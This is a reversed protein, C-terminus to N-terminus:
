RTLTNSGSIAKALSILDPFIFDAGSSNSLGEKLPGLMVTHMGARQGFEIDTPSDGAMLSRSFDIEPFDCKAKLAMGLGPKRDPHQEEDLNPCFYVRDIRGGYKEVVALMMEHIKMADETTMLGKGIGQQNTVVIIRGFVGSFIRLAQRVGELFIFEDFNTVYGGHIRRNIVGDRDLFLTWGRDFSM